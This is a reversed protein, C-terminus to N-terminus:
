NHLNAGQFFYSRVFFHHFLSYYTNYLSRSIHVWQSQSLPDLIRDTASCQLPPFIYLVSVTAKWLKWWPAPFLGSILLRKQMGSSNNALKMVLRTLTWHIHWFCHLLANCINNQFMVLYKYYNLFIRKIYALIFSLNCAFCTQRKFCDM